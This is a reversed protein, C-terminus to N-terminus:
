VVSVEEKECDLRLLRAGRLREFRAEGCGIAGPLGFEACRIAMHSAAGGYKTVLGAIGFAFVWDYGPDANEVCVIRGTVEVEGVQSSPTLWVVEATVSQTTIFNPRSPTLTVVEIDDTSAIVAPLKILDYVHREHRKEDIRGRLYAAARTRSAFEPNRFRLLTSLSVFQTEERSCGLRETGAALNELAASLARTFRFKGEERAQTASAIFRFLGVADLRCGATELAEDIAAVDGPPSPFEQLSAPQSPSPSHWVAVPMQDYRLATIDYTSMRLHGFSTMFDDWKLQGSQARGLDARFRSAVTPIESLFRACDDADLAGVAVLSRLWSRAVFGLRALRAFPLTGLRRCQELLSHAASFSEWFHGGDELAGIRNVHVDLADLRKLDADILAEDLLLNTHDRLVAATHEREEATLTPVQDLRQRVTLDFCSHVVEFEIKDHAVPDDTLRQLYHDVLRRRIDPALLAPTLSNFSARTDIYSRRAMSLMLPAVGVDFYGQSTRAQHWVRETILDRYLSYSLTSPKEGLMETPNWDAMNSLVTRQGELPPQPACCREFRLALERLVEAASQELSRDISPLVLRRCQLLFLEGNAVAFEIDLPTGPFYGELESVLELIPVWRPPCREKPLFRSIFVTEGGRGSTVTDTSRSDPDYNVIFYPSDAHEYRTFVVGSVDVDTLMPQILIQASEPEPEEGRRYSEVVTEIAGELAAAQVAVDRVSEFLGANSRANADEKSCSSRVMVRDSQLRDRIRHAQLTPEARFQSQSVVVQPLLSAGSLFGQLSQLTDAKGGLEPGQRLLFDILRALSEDVSEKYPWTVVDPSEPVDYPLDVGVMQPPDQELATAYVGKVDRDKLVSLEADLYVEVYHPFKARLRDRTGKSGAINAMVVDVNQQVLTYAGFAMRWTGRERDSESYGLDRGFFARTVDGDIFHVPRPGFSELHETLRYGLTTKGAGSLGTLLILRGQRTNRM